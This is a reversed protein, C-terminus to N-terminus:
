AHLRRRRHAERDQPAPRSATTCGTPRVPGRGGLERLHGSPEGFRDRQLQLQGFVGSRSIGAINLDTAMSTNYLAYTDTAAVANLFATYQGVTVETTGINYAYGVGGYLSGTAPDNANGVNGVPVTPITVARADAAFLALVLLVVISGISRRRMRFAILALIGVAALMLTSPEPVAVPVGRFRISDFDYREAGTSSNSSSTIVLSAQTWDNPIFARYDLFGDGALDNLGTGGSLNLLEITDINNTVYLRVFDAAEYGTNAVQVRLSVFADDFDELDVADFTTTANISRHTLVRPDSGAPGVAVGALPNVGGSASSTSAFGLEEDAPGPTFTRAGLPPENFETVALLSPEAIPTLM